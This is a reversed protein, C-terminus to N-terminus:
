SIEIGVPCHDSGMVDPLIFANALRQVRYIPTPLSTTSAGASTGSGRRPCRPGLLQLQKAGPQVPPLHGRLRTGPFHGDLGTGRSPVRFDKENEKPRALDIEKHATNVDGCVVVSRGETRLDDVYGLFADYFEMKYRLREASRKGNPFYIGLFVFDDFDAVITRGESDFREVGLGFTVSRPEHGKRAYVPGRRQLGQAGAHHVLRFLGGRAKLATPLQAKM